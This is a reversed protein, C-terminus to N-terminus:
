AVTRLTLRELRAQRADRLGLALEREIKMIRRTRDWVEVSRHYPDRALLDGAVTEALADDTCEIECAQLIHDEADLIYCRYGVM